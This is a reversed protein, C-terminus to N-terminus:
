ASKSLLQGKDNEKLNKLTWLESELIRRVVKGSPEHVLIVKKGEIVEIKLELLHDKFVNLKKLQEIAEQFQQDDMPPHHEPNEGFPMQGNGEREHTNESKIAKETKNARLVNLPNLIKGM